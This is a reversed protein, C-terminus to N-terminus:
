SMAIFIILQGPTLIIYSPQTGTNTYNADRYELSSASCHLVRLYQWWMVSFNNFTVYFVLCENIYVNLDKSAELTNFSNSRWQLYVLYNCTVNSLCRNGDWFRVWNWHKSFLKLCYSQKLALHTSRTINIYKRSRSDTYKTSIKLVRARIKSVM